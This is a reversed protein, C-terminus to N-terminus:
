MPRTIFGAMALGGGGFQGPFRKARAAAVHGAPIAVLSGLIPLCGIVGLVGFVLSTIALGTRPAPAPVRPDSM